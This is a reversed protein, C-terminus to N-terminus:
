SDTVGFFELTMKVEKRKMNACLPKGAMETLCRKEVANGLATLDMMMLASLHKARPSLEDAGM